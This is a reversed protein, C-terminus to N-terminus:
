FRRSHMADHDIDTKSGGEFLGFYADFEFNLMAVMLGILALIATANEYWRWADYLKQCKKDEEHSFTKM